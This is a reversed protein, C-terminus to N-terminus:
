HFATGGREPCRRWPCAHHDPPPRPNVLARDTPVTPRGPADRRRFWELYNGLRRTAVGHFPRLWRRLRRRVFALETPFRSRKEASYPAELRFAFRALACLPGSVGVIETVRGLRPRVHVDYDEQRIRHAGLSEIIMAASPDWAVLVTVPGTQFTPLTWPEGRRRPPRTLRGSRDGKASHPMCFDGVKIRGELHPRPEKRWQELLRHRWRLATDKNVDLLAASRRVTLRRDVCQLFPRWHRPRKLYHLATGTFTSFTRRCGRCRYRQRGAFRGWKQVRESACHPCASGDQLPARHDAALTFRLYRITSTLHPDPHETAM